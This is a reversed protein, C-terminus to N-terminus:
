SVLILRLGALIAFGVIMWEFVRQSILKLLFRGCFVGVLICPVLKLNLLLSEPTTYSLGGMFPLKILNILLFFRAGAGILEMKPLRRALFYLQFVPGAANAITTAVGAFSGGAVGFGKSLALREAREPYIKRALQLAVMFLILSGIVPKAWEESMGDLLFFGAAMGVLTPPLLKWVPGWSAYKRFMPYVSLDAVVLMPLLIGVSRKGFLEAMIFVAILGVGSFGSKGLGVCLAALGVLVWETTGDIVDRKEALIFQSELLREKIKKKAVFNRGHFAEEKEWEREQKQM